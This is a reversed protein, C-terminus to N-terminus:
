PRTGIPRRGSPRGKGIPQTAGKLRENLCRNRENESVEDWSREEVENREIKGLLDADEQRALPKRDYGECHWCM